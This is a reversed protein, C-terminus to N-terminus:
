IIKKYKEKYDILWGFDESPYHYKLITLIIEFNNEEYGPRNMHFDITDPSLRDLIYADDRDYRKTAFQNQGNSRPIHRVAQTQNINMFAIEQDLSWYDSRMSASDRDNMLEDLCAQYSKDRLGFASRWDKAMAGIYCIPYQNDPVLDSGFISFGSDAVEPLRFLLMDVDATVLIENDPLDLCGAYLRSCQTYAAEKHKPASFYCAMANLQQKNMTDTILQMKIQEKTGWHPMFCIVDAGLKNWCWTVIPLFFLYKDDYTTSIIAKM